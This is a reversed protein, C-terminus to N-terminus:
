EHEETPGNEQEARLRDLEAALRVLDATHFALSERLGVRRSELLAIRREVNAPTHAELQALEGDLTALFETDILNAPMAAYHARWERGPELALGRQWRELFQLATVHEDEGDSWMGNVHVECRSSVFRLLGLKEFDSDVSLVVAVAGDASAAIFDLDVRGAFQPGEWEDNRAACTLSYGLREASDLYEAVATWREVHALVGRAFDSGPSVASAYAPPCAAPSALVRRSRGDLLDDLQQGTAVRWAFDALEDLDSESVDLAGAWTRAMRYGALM